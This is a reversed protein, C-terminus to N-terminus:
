RKNIDGAWDSDIFGHFIAEAYNEHYFIAFYTMGCLYIFVKKIINWHEKALTAMYRSLVGVAHYINQQTYIMVYM